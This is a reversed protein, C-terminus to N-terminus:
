DLIHSPNYILHKCHAVEGEPKVGVVKGNEMIIGDVPKNLMHTEGFIAIQFARLCSVLAMSHNYILVREM